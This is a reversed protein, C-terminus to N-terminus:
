DKYFQKPSLKDVRLQKLMETLQKNTMISGDDNLMSVGNKECWARKTDESKDAPIKESELQM